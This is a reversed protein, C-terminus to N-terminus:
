RSPASKQWTSLNIEFAIEGAAPLAADTPIPASPAGEESYASAHANAIGFTSNWLARM